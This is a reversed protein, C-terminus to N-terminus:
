RRAEVRNHEQIGGDNLCSASDDRVQRPAHRNRTWQRPQCPVGLCLHITDGIYLHIFVIRPRARRQNQVKPKGLVLLQCRASVPFGMRTNRQMHQRKGCNWPMCSKVSEGGGGGEKVRGHARCHTTVKPTVPLNRHHSPGGIPSRGMGKCV